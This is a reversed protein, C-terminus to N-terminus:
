PAAEGRLREALVKLAERLRQDHGARERKAALVWRTLTATTAKGLAVEILVRRRHCGAAPGNEEPAM